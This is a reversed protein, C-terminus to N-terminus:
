KLAQLIQKLTIQKYGSPIKFDTKLPMNTEPASLSLTVEGLLQEGGLLHVTMETPFLRNNTSQFNGYDWTLSYSEDQSLLHTSLLKEDGDVTFTYLFGNADKRMFDAHHRDKRVRFRHFDGSEIRREGSVFLQNAFLAQLNYFNFDIHMENRLMEYNDAVYRKNLRDVIKISDRTMEVRMMEVGLIPQVSLHLSEDREMKLVAKTSIEKNKTTITLNLRASFTEYRFSQEVVSTFLDEDAKAIGDVSTAIKTSSKCATLACAILVCFLTTLGNNTM